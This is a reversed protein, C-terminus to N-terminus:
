QSLHLRDLYRFFDLHTVEIERLLADNPFQVGGELHEEPNALLGILNLLLFCDHCASLIEVGVRPVSVWVGGDEQYFLPELWRGESSPEWGPVANFPTYTM